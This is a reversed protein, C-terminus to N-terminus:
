LRFGSCLHRNQAIVRSRHALAEVTLHLLHVFFLVTHDFLELLQLLNTEQASFGLGVVRFGCGSM